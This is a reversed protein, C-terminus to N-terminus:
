DDGPHTAGTFPEGGLRKTHRGIEQTAPFPHGGSVRRERCHDRLVLQVIAREPAFVVRIGSERVPVCEAEVGDRRGCSHRHDLHDFAFAQDLLGATDALVYTLAQACVARRQADDAVNAAHTSERADFENFIDTRQLWKWSLALDSLAQFTPHALGTEQQPAIRIPDRESRREDHGDLLGVLHEVYEEFAQALFKPLLDSLAAIPPMDWPM